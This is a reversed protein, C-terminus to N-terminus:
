YHLLQIFGFYKAAERIASPAELIFTDIIGFALGMTAELINRLVSSIKGQKCQMNTMELLNESSSFHKISLV